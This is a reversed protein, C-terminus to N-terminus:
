EKEYQIIEDPSANAGIEETYLEIMELVRNKDEDTLRTKYTDKNHFDTIWEKRVVGIDDGKICNQPTILTLQTPEDDCNSSIVRLVAVGDSLVTYKSLKNNINDQKM